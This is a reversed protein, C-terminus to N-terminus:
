NVLLKTTVTVPAKLGDADSVTLTITYEGEKQYTHHSVSGIQEAQMGNSSDFDWTYKLSSLGGTAAGIFFVDDTVAVVSGSPINISDAKIPTTDTTIKAEGLFLTSPIDTFILLRTMKFDQAHELSKFKAMPVAIRVWNDDPDLPLTNEEVSLKKGDEGCFVFRVKNAKPASYSEVDSASMTGAAPNVTQVDQFFFSFVIYRKTDVGSDFLTVPLTFDLKGGSYMGQTTIKIANSGSLVKENSEVSKGSGWGGVTIGEQSLPGGKFIYTDEAAHALPALASLAVVATLLITSFRM